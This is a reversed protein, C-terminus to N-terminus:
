FNLKFIKCYTEYDVVGYLTKAADRSKSGTRLAELVNLFIECSVKGYIARAVDELTDSSNAKHNNDPVKKTPTTVVTSKKASKHHSTDWTQKTKVFESKGTAFDVDFISCLIEAITDNPIRQGRLYKGVTTFDKTELGKKALEINLIEAVEKLNLGSEKYKDHWFRNGSDKVQTQYRDFQATIWDPSVKLADALKPIIKLRPRTKGICWKDVVQMSTGVKGAIDKLSLGLEIRRQNLPFETKMYLTAAM